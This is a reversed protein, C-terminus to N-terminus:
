PRGTNYIESIEVGTIAPSYVRVDAMRGYFYRFAMPSLGFDNEDPTGGVSFGSTQVDTIEVGDIYIKYDNQPVGTSAVKSAAVHYWVDVSSLANVSTSQLKTTTGEVLHFRGLSNGVSLGSRGGFFLPRSGTGLQYVWGMITETANTSQSYLTHVEGPNGFYGYNPTWSFTGIITGEGSGYVDTVNTSTTYGSVLFQAQPTPTSAGSMQLLGQFDRLFGPRVGAGCASVLALTFLIPFRRNM